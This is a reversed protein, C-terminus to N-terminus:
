FSSIPHIQIVQEVLRVMVGRDGELSGPHSVLVGLEAALARDRPGM